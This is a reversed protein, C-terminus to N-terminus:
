GVVVERRGRCPPGGSVQAAAEAGRRSLQRGAVVRERPEDRLEHDARGRELGRRRLELEFRELELKLAELAVDGVGANGSGGADPVERGLALAHEVLDM